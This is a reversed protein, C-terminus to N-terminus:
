NIPTCTCVVCKWEKGRHSISRQLQVPWTFSINAILRHICITYLADLLWSTIKEREFFFFAIPLYEGVHSINLVDSRYKTSLSRPRRAGPRVSDKEFNDEVCCLIETSFFIRSGAGQLGHLHLLFSGGARRLGPL